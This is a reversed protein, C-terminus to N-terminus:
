KGGFREVIDQLEELQGMDMWSKESVPYVGVKEGKNLYYNILDTMHLFQNSPLDKITEPELVYMGANVLFDFEPKESIKKLDEKNGIEIVGYPIVYHKLSAVITIKNKNKHHYDLIDSYDGNIIVDCNNVFFTEKIANGLLSLSGATGLPKEEQIYHIRYDHKCDNFYAKIMNSKYSVSLYFDCCGYKRFREIILELIPKDGIPILPKPLIKTYPHLRTGQGGAMVVVPVNIQKCSSTDEGFIDYWSVMSVIEKQENVIPISEIKHQLMLDKAKESSFNKENLVIPSYNIIKETKEELNGNKLIWRRIDGDTIVGLLRKCEVVLLIKEAADDMKKIACKVNEKPSIFLKELNKLISAKKM